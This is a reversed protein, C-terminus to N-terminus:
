SAIFPVMSYAGEVEMVLQLAGEGSGTRTGLEVVHDYVDDDLHEADAAVLAVARLLSLGNQKCYQRASSLYADLEKRDPLHGFVKVVLAEPAGKRRGRYLRWAPGNAPGGAAGEAPAWPGEGKGDEAGGGPSALLEGVAPIGKLYLDLRELIDKGKPVRPSGVAAAEAIARQRRSYYRYFGLDRSLDSLLMLSPAAFAAMVVLQLMPLFLSITGLWLGAAVLVILYGLELIILFLVARAMVVMKEATPVMSGLWMASGLIGSLSAEPAPGPGSAIDLVPGGERSAPGKGKLSPGADKLAPEKEPRGEELAVLAGSAKELFPLFQREKFAMMLLALGLGLSPVFLVSLSSYIMMQLSFRLGDELYALINLATLSILLIVAASWATGLLLLRYSRGKLGPLARGTLAALELSAGVPSELIGPDQVPLQNESM